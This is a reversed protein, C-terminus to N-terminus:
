NNKHFSNLGTSIDLVNNESIKDTSTCILQIGNQSCVSAFFKFALDCKEDFPENIADVVIIPLLPLSPYLEKIFKHLGIYTIIQWCTQRAKSGPIFESIRVIKEGDRELEEVSRGITAVKSPLFELSFGKSVLGLDEKIFSLENPMNLYLNTLYKNLKESNNTNMKSKLDKISKELEKRSNELSSIDALMNLKEYKDFYFSLSKISNSIDYDSKESMSNKIKEILSNIENKKNNIKEISLNYDKMSLVNDEDQLFSLSKEISELYYKFEDEEGISNKLLQLLLKYKKNRNGILDRQKSFTKEIQIQNNLKNRVNLLYTLEKNIPNVTNSSRDKCFAEYNKKKDELLDPNPIGLYDMEYNIQDLLLKRKAISDSYGNLKDAIEKQRKELNSLDKQRKSDFIFQMQKRIRKVFKYDVSQQFVHVVNGLAYQDIFNLYSFARFTLNEEVVEHYLEFCDTNSILMSQILDKYVDIDIQMYDDAFDNKYFYKNEDNRMMYLTKGNFIRMSIRHVNDMGKLGWVPKEDWGISSGLMYYIVKFLVSKGCNNPGYIITYDDNFDYSDKDNLTINKIKFM